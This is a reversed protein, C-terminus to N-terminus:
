GAQEGTGSPQNLRARIDAIVHSANQELSLEVSEGTRLDKVQCTGAALEREGAIVAIAFGRQNAYKLQQGLRKPDPYVEVALGAARLQAALQLYAHLQERDFYAILVPAPTKVEAVLHLEEMAALLRDLGLSAGIGPLQQKTFLGALNDYRGGSCVSGIAPM